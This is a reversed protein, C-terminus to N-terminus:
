VVVRQLALTVRYQLADDLYTSINAYAAAFDLLVKEGTSLSELRPDDAIGRWDPEDRDAGVYPGLFWHTEFGEFLTRYPERM